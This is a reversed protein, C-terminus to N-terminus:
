PESRDERRPAPAGSNRDRVKSSSGSRLHMGSFVVAGALAGIALAGAIPAALDSHWLALSGTCSVVALVTMTAVIISAKSM